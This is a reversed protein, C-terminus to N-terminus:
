VIYIPTPLIMFVKLRNALTKFAIPLQMPTNGTSVDLRRLDNMDLISIPLTKLNKNIICLRELCALQGIEDSIFSGSCQIQLRKLQTQQWIIPSIPEELYCLALSNFPYRNKLLLFEIEIPTLPASMIHLTYRWQWNYMKEFRINFMMKRYPNHLSQPLKFFTSLYQSNNTRKYHCVVMQSVDFDPAFPSYMQFEKDGYTIIYSNFQYCFVDYMKPPLQVKLLTKLREGVTEDLSTLAVIMLDPLLAKPIGGEEIMELVLYDNTEQNSWLLQRMGECGETDLDELFDPHATKLFLVLDHEKFFLHAYLWFHTPIEVSDCVIILETDARIIDHYDFDLTILKQKYIPKLQCTNGMFAISKGAYNSPIEFPRLEPNLYYINGYIL